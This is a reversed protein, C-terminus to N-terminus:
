ILLSLTGSSNSHKKKGHVEISLLCEKIIFIYRHLCILAHKLTRRKLYIFRFNRNKKCHEFFIWIIFDFLIFNMQDIVVTSTHHILLSSFFFFFSFISM